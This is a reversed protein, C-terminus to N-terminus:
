EDNVNESQDKLSNEEIDEENDNEDKELEEVSLLDLDKEDM